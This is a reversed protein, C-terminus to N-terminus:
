LQNELVIAESHIDRKAVVLEIDYNNRTKLRDILYKAELYAIDPHNNEKSLHALVVHKLSENALDELLKTSLENSLHGVDSLIRQKLYYPYGGVQLMKVDHNAELYLLHSGQLHKLIYDDYNGLDTVFGIKKDKHTFTYCVSDVADHSTKFPTVLIDHIYFAQDAKIIKILEEDILGLAKNNRLEQWTKETVYIPMKYRRSMVGLGSIHDSHEHTILIGDLRQPDIDISDLGAKIRKGSIGSDILIHTENTGIYICNGSSGSALSCLQIM